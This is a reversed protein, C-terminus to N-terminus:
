WKYTTVQRIWIALADELDELKESKLLKRNETRTEGTEKKESFIKLVTSVSSHISGM